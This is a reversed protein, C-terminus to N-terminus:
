KQNCSRNFNFTLKYQYIVETGQCYKVSDPITIVPCQCKAEILAKGHADQDTTYQIMINPFEYLTEFSNEAGAVLTEEIFDGCDIGAQFNVTTVLDDNEVVISVLAAECASTGFVM